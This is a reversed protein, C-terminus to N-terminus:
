RTRVLRIPMAHSAWGNDDCVYGDESEDHCGGQGWANVQAKAAGPAFRGSDAFFSTSFAASGDAAACATEAYGYGRLTTLRGVLQSVQIDVGVDDFDVDCTVWGSVSVEGSKPNISASTISVDLGGEAYDGGGGGGTDAAVLGVSAFALAIAFPIALFRSRM